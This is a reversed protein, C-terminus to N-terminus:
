NYYTTRTLILTEGRNWYNLCNEDRVMFFNFIQYEQITDYLKRWMSYLRSQLTLILYNYYMEIKNIFTGFKM